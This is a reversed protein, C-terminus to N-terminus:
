ESVFRGEVNDGADTGHIASIKFSGGTTATVTLGDAGLTVKDGINLASGDASLPALYIIDEAVKCVPILTGAEVTGEYECMCLYEPVANGTAVTLNGGAQVMAMGWKPTIAACPLYEHPPVRGDDIKFYKIAM